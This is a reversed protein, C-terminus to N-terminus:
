RQRRYHRSGERGHPSRRGGALPPWNVLRQDRVSETVAPAWRHDRVQLVDELDCVKAVLHKEGQHHDSQVAEAGMQGGRADIDGRELLQPLAASVPPMPTGQLQERAAGEGVERDEGEADHRVDSRDIMM